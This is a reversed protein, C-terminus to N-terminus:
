LAKQKAIAHMLAIRRGHAIRKHEPLLIQTLSHEWAGEEKEFTRAQEELLAYLGQRQDKHLLPLLAHLLASLKTDQEIFKPIAQEM